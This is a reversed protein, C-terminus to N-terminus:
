HEQLPTMIIESLEPFVSTIEELQAKNYDEFQPMTTINYKEM